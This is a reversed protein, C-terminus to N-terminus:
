GRSITEVPDGEGKNPIEALKMEKPEEQKGPMPSKRTAVVLERHGMKVNRQEIEQAKICRRLGRGCKIRGRKGRERKEECTGRM